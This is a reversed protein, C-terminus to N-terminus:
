SEAEASVTESDPSTPPADPANDRIYARIQEVTELTVRGGNELRKILGGNKVARQCLTTAAIGLSDAGTRIEDLLERSLTMSSEYNAL